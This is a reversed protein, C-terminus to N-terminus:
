LAWAGPIHFRIVNRGARAPVQRRWEHSVATHNLKFVEQSQEVFEAGYVESHLLEVFIQLKHLVEKPARM